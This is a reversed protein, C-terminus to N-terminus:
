IVWVLNWVVRLWGVKNIHIQAQIFAHAARETHLSDKYASCLLVQFIPCTCFSRVWNADLPHTGRYDQKRDSDPLHALISESLVPHWCWSVTINSTLSPLKPVPPFDYALGGEGRKVLVVERGKTVKGRYMVTNNSLLTRLLHTLLYM